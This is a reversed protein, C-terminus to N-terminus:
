PRLACCVKHAGHQTLLSHVKYFGVPGDVALIRKSGELFGCKMEITKTKVTETPTVVIIAEVTGAGMGCVLSFVSSPLGLNLKTLERKLSSNTGFRVGAKPISGLVVPVLGTYLGGIGQTTTIYRM